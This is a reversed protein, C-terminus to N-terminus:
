SAMSTPLIGEKLTLIAAQVRNTLNLKKLIHRLHIKVTHESIGLNSGIEKNSEGTSLHLLIERERQTLNRAADPKETGAVPSSILRAAMSRPLIVEGQSVLRICKYLKEPEISHDLFGHVGSRMAGVLHAEDEPSSLLVVRTQPLAEKLLQTAKLGDCIPMKLEMLVIGPQLAKSLQLVELGNRAEAVVRIGKQGQFLAVLGKRLLTQDAAVLLAIEPAEKESKRIVEEKM